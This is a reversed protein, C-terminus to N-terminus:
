GTMGLFWKAAYTAQLAAKLPAHAPNKLCPDQRLLEVACQRASQILGADKILHGIKFSPLGHQMAGLIEGPGRLSLDEESIRFGNQTQTMVEIRRKAESSQTDAILLCHSSFASRGVRGRLQHLTALGFREAHQIVMLTANPIDIGVEIISTAILLDLEGKRFKEMAVEKEPNKLQGHLVGVRLHRFVTESLKRAEQVTAKLEVKDSEEVLPYVMYAQHGQAVEKQIASYAETESTHRTTIPTRGPPLEDLTSVDLDGYITLALTRPIPTATMVLVDPANGKERL